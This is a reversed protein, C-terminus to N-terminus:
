AHTEVEVRSMLHPKLSEGMGVLRMSSVCIEGNLFTKRPLDRVMLNAIKETAVKWTKTYGIDWLIDHYEVM